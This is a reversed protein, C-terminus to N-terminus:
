IQFTKTFFNFVFCFNWLCFYTRSSRTDPTNQDVFLIRTIRIGSQVHKWQNQKPYVSNWRSPQKRRTLCVGTTISIIIIIFLFWLWWYADEDDCSSARLRRSTSSTTANKNEKTGIRKLRAPLCEEHMHEPVSRSSHLDLLDEFQVKHQDCLSLCKLTIM